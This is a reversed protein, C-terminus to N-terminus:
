EPKRELLAVGYAAIGEKRGAFGLEETTTAKINVKDVECGLAEAVNGVMQPIYPALKPKQAVITADV